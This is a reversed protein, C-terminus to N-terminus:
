RSWCHFSIKGHKQVFAFTGEHPTFWCETKEAARSKGSSECDARTCAGAKRLRLRCRFVLGDREIGALHVGEGAGEEGPAIGIDILIIGGRNRKVFLRQFEIRGIRFDALPQHDGFKQAAIELGAGLDGIRHLVIGRHFAHRGDHATEVGDLVLVEGLGLLNQFIGTRVIEVAHDVRKQGRPRTGTGALRLFRQRQDVIHLARAPNRDELFVIRRGDGKNGAVIFGGALAQVFRHRVAFAPCGGGIGIHARHHRKGPQLSGGAVLM